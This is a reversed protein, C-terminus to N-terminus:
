TVTNFHTHLTYNIQVWNFKTALLLSTEKLLNDFLSVDVEDTSLHLAIKTFQVSIQKIDICELVAPLTTTSFFTRGTNGDTSGGDTSLTGCVQNVQLGTEREAGGLGSIAKKLKMDKMADKFKIRWGSM